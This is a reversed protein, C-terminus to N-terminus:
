VHAKALAESPSVIAQRRSGHSAVWRGSSDKQVRHDGDCRPGRRMLASAASMSVDVLFGGGGSLSALAGFAAILGSIPDALADACFVPTDPDSWAVLSGSVAADDGFAVYNSRPGNRGYGTVSVWSRGARESLFREPSLGLQALARPRSSEIVVDAQELLRHLERRGESTSFSISALNHGRHLREYMKPDGVRAGDPRAPDEVTVVEAGCRGLVHTCLPGAWMASFDVIRPRRDTRPTSEGMRVLEVASRKPQEGASEPALTAAAIGVLQAREVLDDATCRQGMRSLVPWPDDVVRGVVAALLEVDVSRPLNCAMWGDTCRIFRCSGNASSQGRRGFSREAARECVVQIPDLKVQSGALSSLVSIGNCVAGIHSILPFDVGVPAGSPGTIWMAGSAAFELIPCERAEGNDSLDVVLGVAATLQTLERNVVLSQDNGERPGV